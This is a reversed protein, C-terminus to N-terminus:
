NLKRKLVVITTYGKGTQYQAVTTSSSVPEWGQLGLANIQNWFSSSHQKESDLWRLYGPGDTVYQDPMFDGCTEVRTEFRDVSQTGRAKTAAFAISLLSAAALGLLFNRM